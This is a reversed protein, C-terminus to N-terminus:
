FFSCKYNRCMCMDCTGYQEFRANELYKYLSWLERSTHMSM